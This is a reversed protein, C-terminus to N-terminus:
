PKTVVLPCSSITDGRVEGHVYEVVLPPVSVAHGLSNHRKVTYPALSPQLCRIGAVGRDAGPPAYRSSRGCRWLYRHLDVADFTAGHARIPVPGVLASHWRKRFLVRKEVASPA